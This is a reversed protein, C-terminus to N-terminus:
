HKKQQIEQLYCDDQENYSNTIAVVSFVMQSATEHVYGHEVKNSLGFVQDWYFSRKKKM